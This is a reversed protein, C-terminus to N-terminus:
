DKWTWTKGNWNKLERKLRSLTAGSVRSLRLRNEALYLIDRIVQDSQAVEHKAKNRAQRIDNIDM